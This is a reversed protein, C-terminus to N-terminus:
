SKTKYGLATYFFLYCKINQTVYVNIFYKGLLSM